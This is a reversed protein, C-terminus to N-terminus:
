SSSTENISDNWHLADLSRLTGRVPLHTELFRTLFQRLEREVAPDTVLKGALARNEGALQALIAFARGSLQADFPASPPAEPHLFSGDLLRCRVNGRLPPTFPQGTVACREFQLAFGLAQFLRLEFAWLLALPSAPGDNLRNLTDAAEDYLDPHPDEDRMCKALLEALASGIALLRLNTHLQAHASVANWEKLLQLDRGPKDYYVLQVESLLQLGATAGTKAKSRAGKAMVGIKGATRAFATLILSTEGHKVVRLVLGTDNRLTAV